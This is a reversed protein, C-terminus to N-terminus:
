RGLVEGNKGFKDIVWRKLLKRGHAAIFGAWLGTLLKSGWAIAEGEEGTVVGPMMAGACGLLLVLVPLARRWIPKKRLKPLMKNVAYLVAVIGAALVAVQPTLLISVLDM